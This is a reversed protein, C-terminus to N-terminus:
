SVRERKAPTTRKPEEFGGGKIVSFAEITLRDNRQVKRFATATYGWFWKGNRIGQHWPVQDLQILEHDSPAIAISFGDPLVGRPCVAAVTFRKGTHVGFRSRICIVEDGPKFHSNM